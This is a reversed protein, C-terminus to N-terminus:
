AKRTKAKNMSVLWLSELVTYLLYCSAFPILLTEIPPAMAKALIVVLIASLVLRLMFNIMIANVFQVPKGSQLSRRVLFLSLCTLAYFFCACIMVIVAADQSIVNMGRGALALVVLVASLATLQFLPGISM